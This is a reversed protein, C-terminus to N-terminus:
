VIELTATQLERSSNGTKIEYLGPEVVEKMQANWLAFARADLPLRVTRREGPALTVRAFGRLQLVPRAM